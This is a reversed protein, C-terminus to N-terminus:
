RHDAWHPTLVRGVCEYVYTYGDTEQHVIPKRGFNHVELASELVQVQERLRRVESCSGKLTRWYLRMFNLMYLFM